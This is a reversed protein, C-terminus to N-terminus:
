GYEKSYGTFYCDSIKICNANSFRAFGRGRLKSNFKVGKIECDGSVDFLYDLGNMSPSFEFNGGDLSINNLTIKESLEIDRNAILWGGSGCLAISDKIAQTDDTEGDKRERIFMFKQKVESLQAITEDIRDNVVKLASQNILEDFTGDQTWKNLIELTVTRINKLLNDYKVDIIEVHNLLGNIREIILMMLEVATLRKVDDETIIGLNMVNKLLENFM